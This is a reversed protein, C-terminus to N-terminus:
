DCNIFPTPAYQFVTVGWAKKISSRSIEAIAEKEPPILGNLIAADLQSELLPSSIAHLM